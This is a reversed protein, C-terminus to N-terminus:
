QSARPRKGLETRVDEILAYSSVLTAAQEDVRAQLLAVLIKSNRLEDNMTKIALDKTNEVLTKAGLKQETRDRALQMTRRTLEHNEQEQVLAAKLEGIQTDRRELIEKIGQNAESAQEM